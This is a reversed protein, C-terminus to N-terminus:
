LNIKNTKNLSEYIIKYRNERIAPAIISFKLDSM